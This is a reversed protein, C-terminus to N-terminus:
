RLMGEQLRRERELARQPRGQINWYCRVCYDCTTHELDNSRKSVDLRAIRLGCPTREREWGVFHINETKIPTDSAM